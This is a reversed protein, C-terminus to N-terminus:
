RRATELCSGIIGSHWSKGQGLFPTVVWRFNWGKVYNEFNGKLIWEVDELSATMVVTLQKGLRPVLFQFHPYHKRLMDLRYHHRRESHKGATPISGFIAHNPEPYPLKVRPRVSWYLRFLVALVIGGVVTFLSFM